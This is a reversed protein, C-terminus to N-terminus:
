AHSFIALTMRSTASLVVGDLMASVSSALTWQLVAEEMRALCLSVITSVSCKLPKSFTRGRWVKVSTFPILLWILLLPKIQANSAIIQAEEM